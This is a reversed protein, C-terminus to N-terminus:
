HMAAAEAASTAHAPPDFNFAPVATAFERDIEQLEGALATLRQVIKATLAEALGQDALMLDHMSARTLKLCKVAGSAAITAGYDYDIFMAMEGILSGIEIAEGAREQTGADATWEAAGGVILLAGDAGAGAETISDGTRFKIREARAAIVALQEATLGQFIEVRLLQAVIDDSAM